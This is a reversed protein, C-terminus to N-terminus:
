DTQETNLTASISGCRTLSTRPWSHSAFYSICGGATSAAGSCTSAWCRLALFGSCPRIPPRLLAWHAARGGRDPFGSSRLGVPSTFYILTGAGFIFLARVAGPASIDLPMLFPLGFVAIRLGNEAFALPAPIDRWFEDRRFAQPLRKALAINWAAAPLLLWGCGLAYYAFAAMASRTDTDM